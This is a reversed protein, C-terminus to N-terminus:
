SSTSTLPARRRAAMRLSGTSRGSSTSASTSGPSRSSCLVSGASPHISAPFPPLSVAVALVFMVTATGLMGKNVTSRQYGARQDRTLLIWISIAYLVLFAGFLLSEVFFAILQLRSAVRMAM